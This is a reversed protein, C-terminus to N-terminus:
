LCSWTLKFLVADGAEEFAFLLGHPKKHYGRFDQKEVTHYYAWSPTFEQLWEILSDRPHVDHYWARTRPHSGQKSELLDTCGGRRWFADDDPVPLVVEYM